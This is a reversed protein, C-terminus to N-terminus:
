PRKSTWHEQGVADPWASGLKDLMLWTEALRGGEVRYVQMGARTRAEGTNADTWKLTFRFWARDGAFDHDYVVFRTQPRQQQAATVEAVYAEPTVSRTGQEDHRIYVKGLCGAILDHRGEHWL